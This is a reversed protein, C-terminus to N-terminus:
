ITVPAVSAPFYIPWSEAASRSVLAPTPNVPYAQRAIALMAADHVSNGFVADPHTIGARALSAVKGEDTPVDLIRDTVGPTPGDDFTFAIRNGEIPGSHIFPNADSASKMKEEVGVVPSATTEEALVAAMKKALVQAAMGVGSGLAMGTVSSGLSRLFKGRTVPSDAMVGLNVPACCVTWAFLGDIGQGRSAPDVQASLGLDALATASRDQLERHHRILLMNLKPSM